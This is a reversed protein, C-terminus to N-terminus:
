YHIEKFANTIRLRTYVARWGADTPHVLDWFFASKPNECVTYKKVKEVVSGCFYKSSVGVCCPELENKINHTSPHKLVSMFSDYLDLVIFPLSSNDNLQQNLKTVAETLLTNHYAVLLNNSTENCEKFSSSATVSPLCGVPQLNSIIVKKVGLEKIRIVNRITQNVVSLIFSPLGQISGNTVTYRTYDNGAVSVLAVSKRIDSATFVKDQIAKQFFNIQTTMNPGPNLTEFVGTGGFAFSMGNKLHHPALHKRIRYSAPSKVKLYKAIYDTLVRGDSFRGAPKGPFTVGYPHKWSPAFGRKINGTDAYSDGFVFLKTIPEKHHHHHRQIDVEGQVFRQGLLHLIIFIFSLFFPFFDM